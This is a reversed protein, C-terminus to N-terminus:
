APPTFGEVVRRASEEVEVADHTRGGARYIAALERLKVAYREPPLLSKWLPLAARYLQAAETFRARLNCIQALSGLVGARDRDPANIREMAAQARRYVAEAAEYRGQAVFLEGLATLSALTRIHDPGLTRELMGRAEELITQSDALNGRMRECRGINVLLAGVDANEGPLAQRAIRRAREFEGAAQDLRGTAALLRGLGSLMMILDPHDPASTKEKIALGRRLLEEAEEYREQALYIEGLHALNNALRPHDPGQLETQTRVCRELLDQAEDLRGAVFFLTALNGMTLAAQAGAGQKNWSAISRRYLAVAQADRGQRRMVDALNNLITAPEPADPDLRAQIAIAREYMARAEELRGSRSSLAALNNLANAVDGDGAPANRELIGLARKFLSEAQAYDGYDYLLAALNNLSAALRRDHAGFRGAEAVADQYNKRAEAYKGLRRNEDGRALSQRWRTDGSDAASLALQACVLCVVSGLSKQRFTM